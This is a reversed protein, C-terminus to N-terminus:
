RINKLVIIESKALESYKVIFTGLGLKKLDEEITFDGTIKIKESFVKEGLTNFIDFTTPSKTVGEFHFYTRGESPNPYILLGTAVPKENKIKREDYVIVKWKKIIQSDKSVVYYTVPSSFNICNVDSIQEQKGIWAHSNDSIIFSPILSDRSHGTTIQIKITNHLTDIIAQGTMEPLSFSVFNAQIKANHVVITWEKQVDRNEAHVKYIVPNNFDNPSGGSYQRKGSVKAYAGPSLAYAAVLSSRNTGYPMEVVILSNITDITCSKQGPISFSEIQAYVSAKHWHIPHLLIIARDGPQLEQLKLM